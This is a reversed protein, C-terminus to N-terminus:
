QNEIETIIQASVASKGTGIGFALLFNTKKKVSELPDPGGPGM